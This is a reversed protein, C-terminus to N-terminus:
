RPRATAKLHPERTGFHLDVWEARFPRGAGIYAASERESYSGDEPDRRM